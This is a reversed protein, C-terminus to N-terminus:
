ESTVDYELAVVGRAMAHYPVFDGESVAPVISLNVVDNVMRTVEDSRIYFAVRYEGEVLPISDLLARLKLSHEGNVRLAEGARRLDIMAVRRNLSDFIIAAMEDIRMTRTSELEVVFELSAGSIVPNPAFGFRVLQTRPSLELPHDLDNQMQGQTEALYEAVQEPAPGMGVLQGHGLRIARTCLAQIATLDHSVFLVTRGAKAVDSMKGLCKKQFAADGVALVEDVVLIEPDLHAAVAFGLRMFMGSSYRKVPTDIFEQIGAFEVIEDFKALIEARRMGLVAGTLFINERGTLESHFGTGVELLAGVRGYLEVRGTTPKTIRALIKLLTSKGAGNRGIIGMAEGHSVEFSVDKLAWFNETSHAGNGNGNSRLFSAMRQAPRKVSAVIQDGLLARNEQRAGIRYRKGLQSVRLAVLSM